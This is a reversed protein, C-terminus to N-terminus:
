QSVLREVSRLVMTGDPLVVWEDEAGELAQDKDSVSLEDPLSDTTEPTAILIDDVGEDFIVTTASKSTEMASDRVELAIDDDIFLDSAPLPKLATADTEETNNGISSADTKTVVVKESIVQVSNVLQADEDDTRDDYFLDTISTNSSARIDAGDTSAPTVTVDAKVAVAKDYTAKNVRSKNSDLLTTNSSTKIGTNAPNQTAAVDVKAIPESM